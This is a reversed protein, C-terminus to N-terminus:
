ILDSLQIGGLNVWEKVTKLDYWQGKLPTQQKKENQFDKKKHKNRDM